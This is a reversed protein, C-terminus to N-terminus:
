DSTIGAYIFALAVILILILPLMKIFILVPLGRSLLVFLILFVGVGTGLIRGIMDGNTILASNLSVGTNFVKLGNVELM